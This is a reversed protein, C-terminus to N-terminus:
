QRNAFRSTQWAELMKKGKEEDTYMINVSFDQDDILRSYMLVNM